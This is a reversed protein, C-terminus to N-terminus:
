YSTPNPAVRDESKSSRKSGRRLPCYSNLKVLASQLRPAAFDIFCRARQTIVRDGPYVISLPVPDPEFEALVPILSGEALYPAAQYSFLWILGGGDRAAEAAADALNVSIKPQITVGYHGNAPSKFMWAIAESSKQFTICDHKEIDEPRRPLGRSELYGPSACYCHRVEGVKRAVLSDENLTGIRIGLDAHEDLLNLVFNTFLLRATITPHEAMFDRLIPLIHLRGFLAPATITLQGKPSRYEGAAEAEVEDLGDLIHRVSEYYRRGADTVVLKRTSRILLQAGLHEELEAIKRCVTPLSIGLSRSASSFGQKEVVALYVRM